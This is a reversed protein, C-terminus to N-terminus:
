IRGLFNAQQRLAEKHAQFVKDNCARQKRYYLWPYSLCAIPCLYVKYAIKRAIKIPPSKIMSVCDAKFRLKTTDSAVLSPLLYKTTTPLKILERPLKKEKDSLDIRVLEYATNAEAVIVSRLIMRMLRRIIEESSGCVFPMMPADTQFQQLNPSLMDVVDKFFQFKAPILPDAHYKVLHDYLTKDKPQNSKSQSQYHQVVKVVNKWVTMARSTVPAYEVWRISCCM